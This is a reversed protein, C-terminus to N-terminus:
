MTALPQTSLAVSCDIRPASPVSNTAPQDTQDLRFHGPELDGGKGRQHEADAGGAEQHGLARCEPDPQAEDHEPSSKRM